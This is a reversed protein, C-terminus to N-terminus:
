RTKFTFLAGRNKFVVEANWIMGGVTCTPLIGKASYLNKSIKKLKFRHYGMNMNTAYVHLSLENTDLEKTTKVSFTLTKMLPINKPEIDFNFSGFELMDVGCSSVHLNCSPSQTSFKTDGKFLKYVDASDIFFYGLLGIVAIIELILLKYFKRNKIVM